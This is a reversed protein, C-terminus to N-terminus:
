SFLLLGCHPQHLSRRDFGPIDFISDANGGIDRGFRFSGCAANTMNIAKTVNRVAEDVM